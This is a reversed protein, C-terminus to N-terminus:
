SSILFSIVCLPGEPPLAVSSSLPTFPPLALITCIAYFRSGVSEITPMRKIVGRLMAIPEELPVPCTCTLFMIYLHHLRAQARRPILREVGNGPLVQLSKSLFKASEDILTGTFELFDHVQLVVHLWVCRQGHIRDNRTTAKRSDTEKKKKKKM